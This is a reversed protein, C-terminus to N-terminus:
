RTHRCSSMAGMLVVIVMSWRAGLRVLRGGGDGDRAVGRATLMWTGACQVAFALILWVMMLSIELSQRPLRYATSMVENVPWPDLVISLAYPLFRSRGQVIHYVALTVAFTLRLGVAALLVGATWRLRGRVRRLPDAAAAVSASIPTACEPCVGGPDLTRLDYECRACLLNAASM